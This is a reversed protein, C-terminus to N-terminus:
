EPHKESFSAGPSSPSSGGHVHSGFDTSKLLGKISDMASRGEDSPPDMEHYSPMSGVGVLLWLLGLLEGFGLTVDVEVEVEAEGVCLGVCLGVCVEDLEEDSVRAVSLEVEVGAEVSDEPEETSGSGVVVTEGSPVGTTESDPVGSEDVVEPDDGEVAM